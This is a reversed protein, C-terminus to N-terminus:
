ATSSGSQDRSVLRRLTMQDLEEPTILRGLTVGSEKVRGLTVSELSGPAFRHEAWERDNEADSSFVLYVGYRGKRARRLRHFISSQYTGNHHQVEVVIGTMDPITPTRAGVDYVSGQMHYEMGVDDYKSNNRLRAYVHQQAYTHVHDNCRNDLYCARRDGDVHRFTGTTPDYEVKADRGQELCDVCYHPQDTTTDTNTGNQALDTTTHLEGTQARATYVRSQDRYM